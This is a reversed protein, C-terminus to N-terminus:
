ELEDAARRADRLSFEIETLAAYLDGYREDKLAESAM